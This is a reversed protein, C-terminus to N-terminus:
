MCRKMEADWPPMVVVNQPNLVILLERAYAAAALAAYNQWNDNKHSDSYDCIGRITMCPLNNVVGAAEMEFCLVNLERDKAHRDRMEADRMVSNGSAITGYHVEVERISRREERQVLRNSECNSCNEENEENDNARRHEYDACYLRDQGPRQYKPMNDMRKMHDAIRDLKNPDDHLREMEQVAGLLANPPSNLQCTREFYGNSLRKGFAYTNNDSFGILQPRTFDEDLMRCAAQYEKQLACIWGITYAQLRPIPTSYAESESSASALFPVPSEDNTPSEAVHRRPLSRDEAM